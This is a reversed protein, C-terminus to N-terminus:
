FTPLIKGDKGFTYVLGLSFTWPQFRTHQYSAVPFSGIGPINAGTAHSEVYLFTKKVDFSFGWNPTFMYDFGAALVPGVASGVHVGTDVRDTVSFPFSVAVGAGAYPRFAGFNDFHYTATVPILGPVIRALVTGNPLLPNQWNYGKTKSNIGYPIGGSVNLSVNHTVFVGGEVGLTAVDGLETGIGLPFTAYNGVALATPSQSWSKSFLQNYVYTFGVKVFFPQYYDIAVPAVVPLPMPEKKTPLDAAGSTAVGFLTGVTCAVGFVACSFRLTM